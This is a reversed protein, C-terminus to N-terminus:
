TNSWDKLTRTKGLNKVKKLAKPKTCKM